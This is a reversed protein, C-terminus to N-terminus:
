SFILICESTYENPISVYCYKTNDPSMKLNDKKRCQFDDPNGNNGVKAKCCVTCIHPLIDGANIQMDKHDDVSIFIGDDILHQVEDSRVIDYISARILDNM